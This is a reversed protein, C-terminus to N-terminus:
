EAFDRIPIDVEAGRKEASLYAAYITLTTDIALPLGSQPQRGADISEVFDQLEPQYGMTWNEDPAANSWGEKTSLKEMLYIHQFDSGSPIYTDVLNTPSMRCRARHNNAYVEVWDYIGGLVLESTVIDGVTGDEFVIHMFGYDEVDDYDTRIFGKDQYSDLRTIEHVRATVTVPRIPRGHRMLGEVRKLYLIAGLPHCGKGM